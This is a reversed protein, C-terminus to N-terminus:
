KRKRRRTPEPLQIEASTGEGAYDEPPLQSLDFTKRDNLTVLDNEHKLHGALDALIAIGNEKIQEPTLEIIKEIKEQNLLAFAASFAPSRIIKSWEEAHSKQFEQTPTM